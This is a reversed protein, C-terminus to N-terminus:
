TSVVLRFANQLWFTSETEQSPTAFMDAALDNLFVYFSAKFIKGYKSTVHKGIIDALHANETSKTSLCYKVQKNEVSGLPGFPAQPFLCNRSEHATYCGAAENLWWGLGLGPKGAM